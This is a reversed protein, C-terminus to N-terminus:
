INNKGRERIEELEKPMNVDSKNTYDNILEDYKLARYQYKIDEKDTKEFTDRIDTVKILHYGFDSKVPDSIEGVSMAFAANSFEAVMENSAFFGLDGGDAASPCTSFEKALAAFDGGNDLKTKISKAEEEGPVLIHSAQVKKFWSSYKDYLDKLEKETPEIKMIGEARSRLFNTIILQKKVDNKYTEETFNNKLLFENFGEETYNKKVKEFETNIEEETVNINASNAEDMLVKELIIQELVMEELRENFQKDDKLKTEWEEGAQEKYRLKYGDLVTNFEDMTVDYQQNKSDNSCAAMQFVMIGTMALLLLKKIIKM